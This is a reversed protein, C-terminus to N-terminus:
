KAELQTKKSAVVRDQKLVQVTANWLGASPINAKGSYDSGNWVVVPSIKMAAMNMEPMAPMDLTLKVTADPVPKGNADAVNLHFINEQSGKAPNPETRITIKYGQASEKQGKDMSGNQQVGDQMASQSSAQPESGYAAVLALPVLALVPAIRQMKM